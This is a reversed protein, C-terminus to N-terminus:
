GDDVQTKFLPECCCMSKSSDKIFTFNNLLQSVCCDGCVNTKRLKKEGLLKKKRDSESTEERENAEKKM